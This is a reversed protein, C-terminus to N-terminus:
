GWTSNSCSDLTLGGKNSGNSSKFAVLVVVKDINYTNIPASTFSDLILGDPRKTKVITEGFVETYEGSELLESFKVTYEVSSTGGPIKGPNALVKVYDYVENYLCQQSVTPKGANAVPISLTSILAM